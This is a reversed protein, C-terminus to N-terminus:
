AKAALVLAEAAVLGAPISANFPGWFGRSDFSGQFTFTAAGAGGVVLAAIPGLVLHGVFGPVLILQGTTPERGFYPFEIRRALLLRALGGLAGGLPLAWWVVAATDM